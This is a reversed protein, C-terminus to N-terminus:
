SLINGKYSQSLFHIRTPPVTPIHLHKNPHTLYQSSQLETSERLILKPNLEGLLITVVIIQPFWSQIYLLEQFLIFIFCVIVQLMKQAHNIKIIPFFISDQKFKNGRVLLRTIDFVFVFVFFKQTWPKRNLRSCFIQVRYYGGNDLRIEVEVEEERLQKFGATYKWSATHKFSVFCFTKSLEGGKLGEENSKSSTLSFPTSFLIVNLAWSNIM